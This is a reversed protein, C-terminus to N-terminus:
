VTSDGEGEGEGQGEDEEEVEGEVEEEDEGEDEGSWLGWIFQVQIDNFLTKILSQVELPEQGLKSAIIGILGDAAPPGVTGVSGVSGESSEEGTHLSAMEIAGRIGFPRLLAFKDGIYIFLYAQDILDLILKWEIRTRLLLKIPDAQALHQASHICEENLIELIGNTMGQINHLTPDEVKPKASQIDLLKTGRVQLFELLERVPFVGVVFGAMLKGSDNLPLSVLYGLIPAILLRLWVFHIRTPTLNLNTFNDVMDYLGWVYAGAIAAIVVPPLRKALEVLEDPLWSVNAGTKALALSFGVFSLLACIVVPNLYSTWDYYANFLGNVTKELYQNKEGATTAPAANTARFAQLYTQFTKGKSMLSIIEDRKYKLIRRYGMYILPYFAGALVPMAVFLIRVM